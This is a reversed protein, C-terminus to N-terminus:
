FDFIELPKEGRWDGELHYRERLINQTLRRMEESIDKTDPEETIVVGAKNRVTKVFSRYKALAEQRESLASGSIEWFRYFEDRDWLEEGTGMCRKVAEISDSVKRIKTIPLRALEDRLDAISEEIRFLSAAHEATLNELSVLFEEYEEIRDDLGKLSNLIDECLHTVTSEVGKREVMRIRVLLPYYPSFDLVEPWGPNDEPWLRDGQSTLFVHWPVWEEATRYSRIGEIDLVDRLREVSLTDQLIDMPTIADLPTNWSRGYLYVVSLEPSESFEEEIPLAPEKLKSLAEEDWMRSYYKGDGVAAIRWQALFPNSWKAMWGDADSNPVAETRHWLDRGPLFAVFVDAGGM